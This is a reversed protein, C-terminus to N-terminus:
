FSNFLTLAIGLRFSKLILLRYFSSLRWLLATRKTLAGGKVIKEGMRRGFCARIEARRRSIGEADGGFVNTKKFCHASRARLSLRYEKTMRVRGTVSCFAFILDKKFQVM